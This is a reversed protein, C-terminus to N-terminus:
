EPLVKWHSINSYALTHSEIGLLNGSSKSHWNINAILRDDLFKINWLEIYTSAGSCTYKTNKKFKEIAQEKNM